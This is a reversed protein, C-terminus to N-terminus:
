MVADAGVEGNEVRAVSLGRDSIELVMFLGIIGGDIVVVDVKKALSDTPPLTELYPSPM